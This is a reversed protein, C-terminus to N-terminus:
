SNEAYKNFYQQGDQPSRQALYADTVESPKAKSALPRGFSRHSCGIYAFYSLLNIDLRFHRSIFRRQRVCIPRM